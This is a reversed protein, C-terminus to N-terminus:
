LKLERKAPRKVPATNIDNPKSDGVKNWSNSKYPALTQRTDSPKTESSKADNFKADNFKADSSRADSSRADNFKADNPKSDNQKKYKQKLITIFDHEKDEQIDPQIEPQTIAIKKLKDPVFEITITCPKQEDNDDMDDLLKM